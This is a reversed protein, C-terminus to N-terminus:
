IIRENIKRKLNYIATASVNFRRAVDSLKEGNLMSQVAENREKETMKRKGNIPYSLGSTIHTWTKGRNISDVANPHVNFKNAVQFPRLGQKLFNVIEKVDKDSLVSSGNREGRNTRYIFDNKFIRCIVSQTLNFHAALKKQTIGDRILKKGETMQEDNLKIQKNLRLISLKINKKHEDTLKRGTL